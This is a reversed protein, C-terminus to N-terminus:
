CMRRIATSITPSPPRCRRWFRSCPKFTTLLATSAASLQGAISTPDSPDLMACLADCTTQYSDEAAKFTDKQEQIKEATVEEKMLTNFAKVYSECTTQLDSLTNKGDSLYTAQVWQLTNVNQPPSSLTWGPISSALNGASTLPPVCSIRSCYTSAILYLNSKRNDSDSAKDGLTAYGSLVSQLWVLMDKVAKYGDTDAPAASSFAMPENLMYQLKATEVAKLLYIEDFSQGLVSADTFSNVSTSGSTGSPSGSPSGGTAGNPSGGPGPTGALGPQGSNANMQLNAINGSKLTRYQFTVAGGNGGWGGAQGDGGKSATQGTAASGGQQGPCGSYGNRGNANLILTGDLELEDCIITISGGNEGNQGFPYDIPAGYLPDPPVSSQNKASSIDQAWAAAVQPGNQGPQGEAAQKVSAQAMQKDGDDDAMASVDITVTM